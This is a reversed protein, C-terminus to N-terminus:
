FDANIVHKKRGKALPIVIKRTSEEMSDPIQGIGNKESRSQEVYSLYDFTLVTNDITRGGLHIGTKHGVFSEYLAYGAAQERNELSMESIFYINHLFGKQIINELFGSMDKEAGYVFPVFWSLDAIFIFYPQEKSMREFIEEEEYEDQLLQQKLKNRRVFEPLLEKFYDFIEDETTVYSINDVKAFAQLEHKPSDIICIRSDKKMASQLCVKMYNTKGSRHKGWITYCYIKNLPIGYVSANEADYAVPLYETGTSLTEFEDLEELLTWIPKEPIEPIKRARKGTWCEAMWDCQEKIAELREYDNEAKVSLAAQYELIQGNVSALGRGKIGSEPLVDFHNSHLLDMYSYRDQLSLCLVTNINEGVMSTIDNMGFSAGSVVLYIGHNVGEKTLRILQQEYREETKQKLAAYNDIFIIIAPVTVGHLRIYQNYNGGRFLTKREELVTDMMNFFKGIKDLDNEFMIGGVQPAHEFAAMMKSSFDIGYLNIERPSYKSILAYLMTQMMTSKGSVINGCIAIHGDKMFDVILPIQNQNAPDDVLGIVFDLSVGSKERWKGNEVRTNQFDEFSDLFIQDSLVPMWLKNQQQYGNKQAIVALYEKVAELQTKEKIEPLKIRKQGAIRILMKPIDDCTKSVVQAYLGAFDILRDKNYDNESYELGEDRIHLYMEDTINILRGRDTVFSGDSSEGLSIISKELVRVLSEIWAYETKKKRSAKATNGTMEIKGNLRIMKAIDKNETDANKNYIAGSYGSQFLEFIENNGVQLYCRGAQTIYAADPRHLMDNSDQRDQVRLCLRFKSNSWINDDVTGSPKQTALILHIGLSRGVQAVSILEKMFDPEERKLEAFEDIIIFLHPVPIIAEGNKYLKTYSNINNVGNENFVRQRRRNESKISIMARKVQNGSLNSIQGIMHPLGDFLNAMGGGKYDIVFFGIDDPSYNVALSLMYTQLTESKGSGTTGAVLGHPGHYKEHVDLYCPVGGGKQGIMGKINEYIRNKKWFEEVPIEEPSRVGLMEFFTLNSPIEGGEELEQVQLNSLRRAFNILQEKSTIDDFVIKQKEDERDYVDYMGTYKGDNQIIFECSNPLEEYRESLLVVTLGLRSEKEFIYKSFLEGDLLSIDSVFLIYYPKLMDTSTKDNKEDSRARFIKTLEYLVDSAEEKDSALFRTKKDESWTHPLWKAFRFGDRDEVKEQNYLYGLKVDTYCNNAAIQISILQAVQIAGNKGQGGVIGILNHKTFDLTVPVQYLTEYNEKIFAPKKGLDDEYLMFKEKPVDITVSFPIDGIGLRHTLFDDHTRNRNWLNDNQDNYLLCEQASPYMEELTHTTMEYAKKIEETKEILYKSYTQFRHDEREQDQKKQYHLNFLSWCVGILASSVSMVFGSYMFLSTTGGEIGSAYIMMMCGLLMPLAMTFSPGITMILPPQQTIVKEPPEEIEICDELVHEYNRPSRHYIMKGVSTKKNGPLYVTMDPITQFAKLKKKNLCVDNFDTDIALVTDLFVMHLGIINICDGFQLKMDKEIGVNNLYTGNSSKNIIWYEGNRREIIAHKSSVMNQYNYIIDSKEDKGIMLTDIDKILYKKYGHVTSAVEKIILPIREQKSTVVMLYDNDQLTEGQYQYQNHSLVYYNIDSKIKWKEDVVEMRIMLDNQLDFYKKELILSYDANNLSPLVFEKYAKPSYVSIVLSM